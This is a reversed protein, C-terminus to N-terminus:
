EYRLAEIPDLRAAKRAPYLGFFVGTAAAFSFAILVATPEILMPWEALRAIAQSCSLGIAVGIAGGILSLTLAEILFQALIDGKTAGVAMRLGIERTRETVSVLMINMIGIGGVILSVSAIAGLLLTMVRSSEARAALFQSLNRVQFDPNQGERIRHRERLLTNIEAEVPAVDEASAAKVTISGVLTGGLRRGGLIRQKATALPVYGVDDQDQGFGTQGKIALVGIVTLPVGTVRVTQGLPDSGAGFLNEVVTQGVIIVKGAGRLEEPTFHRGAVLPWERADFYDPKVGYIASSWNRNGFIYQGSGRVAPAAVIVGPLARIADADDEKLTSAAGSGLRAGGQTVSGPTVVMLNSGLRQVMEQVRSQAGAGVGVMAIVAGVGIIIGLATLVSRLVNVRISDLATLFCDFLSM